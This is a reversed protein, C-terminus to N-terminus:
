PMNRKGDSNVWTRGTSASRLDTGTPRSGSSARRREPARDARGPVDRARALRGVPDDRDLFLARACSRRSRRRRGHRGAARRGADAVADRVLAQAAAAERLPARARAARAIRAPDVGALARTNDPAQIALSRTRRRRRPRARARARFATSTRTARRRGSAGGRRRAARRAAAAVRRAGAARRQLACCCRRPSRRRACSCRSVRSRRRPLLRVAARAFRRRPTPCRRTVAGGSRSTSPSTSACCTASGARARGALRLPLARAAGEPADIPEAGAIEWRVALREFLFEVARQWADERSLPPGRPGGRRVRRRTAPTMAGRLVLVDGGRRAHVRSEPAELAEARRRRAAASAWRRGRYAYRRAAIARSPAASTPRPSRTSGPSQRRRRGSGTGPTGCPLAQAIVAPSPTTRTSMRCARARDSRWSSRAISWTPRRRSSTRRSTTCARARRGDALGARDDLTAAALQPHVRAVLVREHAASSGSATSACCCRSRGGSRRAPPAARASPPTARPGPRRAAATRERRGRGRARRRRAVGVEAGPCTRSAPWAGDCTTGRGAPAVAASRRRGGARDCRARSRSRSSAPGPRRTGRRARRRRPEVRAEAQGAVPTREGVHGGVDLGVPREDGPAELAQLRRQALISPM